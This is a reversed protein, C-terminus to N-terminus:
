DWTITTIVGVIVIVVVFTYRKTASFQFPFSFYESFGIGAVEDV